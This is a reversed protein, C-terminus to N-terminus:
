HRGADGADRAPTRAPGGWEIAFGFGFWGTSDPPSSLRSGSPVSPSTWGAIGMRGTETPRTLPEIFGPAHQVRPRQPELDRDLPRPLDHDRPRDGTPSKMELGQGHVPLPSAVLPGVLCLALIHRPTTMM